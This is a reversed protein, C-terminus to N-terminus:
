SSTDPPVSRSFRIGADGHEQWQTSTELDTTSTGCTKQGINFFHLVIALLHPINQPQRGTPPHHVPSRPPDAM